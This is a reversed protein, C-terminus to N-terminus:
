TNRTQPNDDNIPPNTNYNYHTTSYHHTNISAPTPSRVHQNRTPRHTTTAVDTTTAVTDTASSRAEPQEHDTADHM